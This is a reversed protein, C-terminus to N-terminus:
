FIGIDMEPSNVNFKGLIDRVDKTFITNFLEIDNKLKFYEYLTQIYDEIEAKFYLWLDLVYNKSKAINRRKWIVKKALILLLNIVQKNQCQENLGLMLTINWRIEKKTKRLDYVLEKLVGLFNDLRECFLFMHLIGEDEKKCVKCIADQEMGIKCLRMGTFMVNHRIFYDLCELDTDLFRWRMNKWIYREEIENFHRLWFQNAIPKKFVSKVFFHYFMKVTCLHFFMLKEGSKLFVDMRSETKEGNQIEKTWEKPIAKKVEEYQKKLINVNYEEKAEEMADIMVQLPLFGEKYEYLVDRVKSFGVEIWKKFYIEKGQSVVNKNLFLPQNLIMERGHPKFEIESLLSSWASLVEKYFDPIRQLMWDKLKMWLINNGLKLNGCINLYHTMTIKWESKNEENLFRKVTKVRMSKKKQEIDVLGLGGEEVSGILTNYAIRAPKKEWLFELICRKIKQAVWLPMSSVSMIYWIKSLMLVNVILIKGKLNLNRYRWFVLRREMGGIIEEWMKVRTSKEDKGLIVGLIKIEQVEKFAFNETLVPVKGFRMCVTKDENIKAGSGQCFRRVEEMVRRVSGVDKVIVTTDDAYQFIKQGEIGRELEIGQICEEKNIVMGLPEAVLSYLQASLPCGQRISRTIKFPETLFGNCKVKTMAGRYLITIWKIFNVGFGFQELISFLFSHEVRDFAKEFDLSIVYGSKKEERMYGILDRISSITDAIDRGKVGYSQNTKIITPLVKKLRDALVKALIKLDTNLMTIPRFNKLVTKDGKGKYIIKMLGMGMMQYLEGKEFIQEYIEKLIISIKEKFTKYFESGLGDIGPSKGGNLLEIAQIIEEKEIEKDCQKKDEKAVKVTIQQLLIEKEKEDIKNTRFLDEYYYKVEKLIEETGKVTKDDKGKIEKMVGSRGRRKELNFFFKTCKEGEVIHKAKSRLMAGKCKREEMKKLKEELVTIKQIDGDRKNEEERLEKRIEKEKRRKVRQITKSYRISFKKIEYKVNEWWIRKDEVYMGDEKEKEIFKEIESKYSESKLLETNLVWVGPGREKKNFDIKLLVMKHDSLSTDKYSIDEIFDELNITSLIYDIRTQCLFNGVIQKRTFERKKENRERWVDILNNEEMLTKLEKRGADVKFVMGDAMDSKRFVTNFDGVMMVKKWKEILQGLESFFDKKEKEENPAHVNILVFNEGEHRIEIAICKGKGDDYIEKVKVDTDKRILIAVGRGLRGDGNNFYIEGAWRRKLDDMADSKWNTEQLIILDENKCLEKVMEFKERNLLGRANFVVIGLVMLYSFLYNFVEM